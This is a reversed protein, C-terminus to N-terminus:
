RGACHATTRKRVAVGVLLFVLMSLAAPEPVATARLLANGPFGLGDAPFPGFTTSGNVNAPNILNIGNTNEAVWLTGASTTQDLALPRENNGNWTLAGVFFDGSVPTPPIPISVFLDTGLQMVTTSVSRLLVADIPNLDDTPDEYLLLQVQRGLPLRGYAIEIGTITEGGPRVTYGQAWWLGAPQPPGGGLVDESVGDDYSYTVTANVPAILLLLCCAFTIFGGVSNRANM